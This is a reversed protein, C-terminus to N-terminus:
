FIQVLIFYAHRGNTVSFYQQLTYFGRLIELTAGSLPLQPRSVQNLTNDVEEAKDILHQIDAQSEENGHRSTTEQNLDRLDKYLRALQKHSGDTALGFAKLLDEGAALQKNLEKWQASGPRLEPMKKEAVEVTSQAM